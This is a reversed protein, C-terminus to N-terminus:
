GPVGVGRVLVSLGRAEAGGARCGGWLCLTLRLLLLMKIGCIFVESLGFPNLGEVAPPGCNEWCRSLPSLGDAEGEVGRSATGGLEVRTRAPAPPRPLCAGTTLPLNPVQLRADSGSGVAGRRPAPTLIAM